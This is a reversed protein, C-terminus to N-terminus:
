VFGEGRAINLYYYIGSAVHLGFLAAVFYFKFSRPQSVFTTVSVLFLIYIALNSGWGWNGDAAAEGTETLLMYQLLAIAFVGWALLVTFNHKIEKFFLVVVGLPFALSLLLSAVINPSWQSWVALPALGLPSVEPRSIVPLPSTGTFTDMYQVGLACGLALALGLYLLLAQYASWNRKIAANGVVCLGIMPFFALIYNPKTLVSLLSFVAVWIFSGITKGQLWKVAGFFLLIDFPLNFMATSNFWISPAIKDIFIEGPDWWNPLPMVLILALTIFGAALKSHAAKEVIFYSLIAKAIVAATLLITGIVGLVYINKSGFSLAYTLIFFVSYLNWSGSLKMNQVLRLHYYIDTIDAAHSGFIQPYLAIITLLGTVLGLWIVVVRAKGVSSSRHKPLARTIEDHM